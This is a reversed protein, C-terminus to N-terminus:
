SEEVSTITATRHVITDTAGSGAPGTATGASAAPADDGREPEGTLAIFAEELSHTRIELDRAATTTLLRRAVDDTDSATVTLRDGYAEIDTVGPLDRLETVVREREAGPVTARLSRGSALSKIEASSGDAIIRGRSILVIRDAYADAEELQHTSFLVTRGADSDERMAAWFERRATVDMGTTPEDLVILEPDPLLALAFRLRQQQGGSCKAVPRDAFEVVGSRRLCEEVNRHRRYFSAVLDVSQRATIDGLLGGTQMVATVRGAAIAERPPAGFLRVSGSDPASLALMMDITTTKGAGNPGLYAVVEGRRVTLDLGDVARVTTASRGRGTRFTKVVDRLEVAPPATPAPATGRPRATNEDMGGM